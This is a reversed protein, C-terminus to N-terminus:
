KKVLRRVLLAAAGAALLGGSLLTLVDAAHQYWPLGFHWPQYAVFRQLARREDVRFNDGPRCSNAQPFAYCAPNKMNLEDRGVPMTVPGVRLNDIRLRENRYGFLPDYCFIQSHGETFRVDRSAHVRAPRGRSNLEVDLRSIPTVGEKRSRELGALILPYDVRPVDRWAPSRLLQWCTTAVIVAMCAPMVGRAPLRDLGWAAALPLVMVYCAYWRFLSVSDGILPMSELFWQWAPSHYNVALPMILVPALVVLGRGFRAPCRRAAFWLALLLCPVIFPSLSYDFEHVALHWDGHVAAPTATWQWFLSVLPVTLAAGVSALGTLHYVDRPLNHMVAISVGLKAAGLCLAVASALAVCMTLRGPGPGDDARAGWVAVILTGLAMPVAIHAGGGYVVIAALVGASIAAVASGRVILLAIFPALMFTHFNLHGTIMRAMFFGNLAFFVGATMAPWLSLSFPKSRALGYMGAGGALAFIWHTLLAATLPNLLVSLLQPLSYTVDIPNAFQFSGACMAPTFWPVSFIGSQRFFFEASAMRVFFYPYDEGLRSAEAPYWAEIGALYVIALVVALCVAIVVRRDPQGGHFPM